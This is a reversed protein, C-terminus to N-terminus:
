KQTLIDVLKGKQTVAKICAKLLRKPDGYEYHDIDTYYNTIQREITEKFDSPYTYGKGPPTLMGTVFYGNVPYPPYAPFNVVAVKLGRKSIYDWLARGQIDKSSVLRRKHNSTNVMFNCVGLKGPNLGTALSYWGPVTAPPITSKLTASYGKNIMRTITPISHSQMLPKLIKFTGGDIGVLAVRHSEM